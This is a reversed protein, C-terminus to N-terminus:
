SPPAPLPQGPLPRGPGPTGHLVLVANRVAGQADTRPKGITRYHIRVEPLMAGGTLRFDKIIFDRVMPAPYDAAGAPATTAPLAIAAIACLALWAITRVVMGELMSAAIAGWPVIYIGTGGRGSSANRRDVVRTARGSSSAEMGGVVWSASVACQYPSSSSTWM